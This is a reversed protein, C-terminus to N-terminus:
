LINWDQKIMDAAKEAVMYVTAVTNGSVLNPFVSADVVRLVETGKVRLRSDVVDGMACTGVLHYISNLHARTWAEAQQRDSMDFNADPRFRKAIKDKLADTRDLKDLMRVGAVLLLVDAPHSLYAPDIAPPENPDASKIHITGRSLPYQLSNVASIHFANGRDPASLFLKGQDSPGADWDM